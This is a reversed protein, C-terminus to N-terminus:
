FRFYIFPNFGVAAVSLVSAYFIASLFVFRLVPLAVSAAQGRVGLVLRKDIERTIGTAGIM